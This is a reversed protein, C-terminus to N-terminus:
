RTDRPSPSTYLLCYSLHEERSLRFVEQCRPSLLAILSDIYSHLDSAILEEEINYSEEIAEVATLQYFTENFSRRSHNFILNRTMIFLFGDFNKNEDIFTRIEWLKVFVDHVIEEADATSVIYLHTFNYVKTWYHQYLHEFAKKDGEKLKRVADKEDM